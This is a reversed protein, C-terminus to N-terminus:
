SVIYKVTVTDAQTIRVNTFITMEQAWFSLFTFLKNM